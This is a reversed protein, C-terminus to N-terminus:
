RQIRSSLPGVLGGALLPLAVVLAGAFVQAFRRRHLGMRQIM